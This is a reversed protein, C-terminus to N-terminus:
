YGDKQLILIKHLAWVMSMTLGLLDCAEPHNQKAARKFWYHADEHKGKFSLLLALNFQSTVQGTEANRLLEISELDSAYLKPTIFLIILLSVKTFFILVANIKTAEKGEGVNTFKTRLHM